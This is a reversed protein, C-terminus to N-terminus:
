LVASCNKRRSIKGTSRNIMTTWPTQPLRYCAVVHDIKQRKIVRLIYCAASKSCPCQYTHLSSSTPFLMSDMSILTTKKNYYSFLFLCLENRENNIYSPSIQIVSVAWYKARTYHMLTRTVHMQGRIININNFMVHISRSMSKTSLHFSLIRHVLCTNIFAFLITYISKRQIAIWSLM